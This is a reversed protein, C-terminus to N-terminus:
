EFDISKIMESIMTEDSDYFYDMDSDFTFNNLIGDILVIYISQEFMDDDYYDGYEDVYIGNFVVHLFTRSNIQIYKSETFEIDYYLDYFYDYYYEKTSELISERYDDTFTSYDEYATGTSDFPYKSYYFTIASQSNFQFGDSDLSVRKWDAPVKMSFGLDDFEKVQFDVAFILMGSCFVLLLFLLKKM